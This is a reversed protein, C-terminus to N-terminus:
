DREPKIRGIEISNNGKELIRPFYKEDAFLRFSEMTNDEHIRLKTIVCVAYDVLEMNKVRGVAISRDEKGLVKSIQREKPAGLGYQEVECDEGIRMKPLLNVASGYLVFGKIRGFSIGKYEEALVESIHDETDAYLAFIGMERKIKLAPLINVAHEALTLREVEEVCIVTNEKKLEGHINRWTEDGNISLVLEGIMKMKLLVFVAYEEFKMEKVIGVCFPQDQAIITAVHEKESANLILIKIVCDKHVELKPLINVAYDELTIEGVSGVYFPQAQALITAVHEEKTAGLRLTEVECDEHTELKPLIAIAYGEFLANKVRGVCFMEEQALIGDVHEKEDADLWIFEIEHDEHNKLKPLISVACNRLRVKEVNGVCIPQDQALIGAIHEEEDASLVLWEVKSDEKVRLKPIINILYTNHLKVKKLSCGISNPAMREINELALSSVAENNRELCFPSNRAMGHKRISDESGVYEVISFREGITVKTKELLMFFLNVSIEINSLTVATQDTLLLTENPLNQTLSFSDPIILTRLGEESQGIAKKYEDLGFSGGEKRCIPCLLTQKE